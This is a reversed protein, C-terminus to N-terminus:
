TLTYCSGSIHEALSSGTASACVSTHTVATRARVCTEPPIRLLSILRQRLKDDTSYLNYM